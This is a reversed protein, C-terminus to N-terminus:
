GVKGQRRNLWERCPSPPEDELSKAELATREPEAADEPLAPSGDALYNELSKIRVLVNARHRDALGGRSMMEAAKKLLPILAEVEEKPPEETWTAINIERSLQCCARSWAAPDAGKPTVLQKELSEKMFDM